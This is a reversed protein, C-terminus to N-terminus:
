RGTALGPSPPPADDLLLGAGVPQAQSARQRAVRVSAAQRELGDDILHLREVDEVVGALDAGARAVLVRLEEPQRDAAVTKEPDDGAHLEPQPRADLNPAHDREGLCASMM